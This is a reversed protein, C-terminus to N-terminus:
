TYVGIVLKIKSQSRFAAFLFNMSYGFSQFNQIVLRQDSITLM